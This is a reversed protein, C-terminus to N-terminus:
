QKWGCDLLHDALEWIVSPAKNVDWLDLGTLDAILQHKLSVSTAIEELSEQVPEEKKKKAM